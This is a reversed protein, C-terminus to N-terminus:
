VGLGLHDGILLRAANLFGPSSGLLEDRSAQIKRNVCPELGVEAAIHRTNLGIGSGRRAAPKRQTSRLGPLGPLQFMM